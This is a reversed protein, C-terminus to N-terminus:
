RTDEARVILGEATRRLFGSGELTDVVHRCDAQDFGWLRAAQTLSLRLGPMEAFEARVRNVAMNIESSSM